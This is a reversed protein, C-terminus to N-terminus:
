RVRRPRFSKVALGRIPAFHRTNATALVEGAEIATAAILADEIRLGSSHAHEEILAAASHGISESLPLIRFRLDNLSEKIIRMDQRSRAGQLVEIFAVISMSRDPTTNIWAIAEPEGRTFWILVDSDFTM